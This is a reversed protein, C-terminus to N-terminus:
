QSQNHTPVGEQDSLKQYGDHSVVGVDGVGFAFAHIEGDLHLRAGSLNLKRGQLNCQNVNTNWSTRM